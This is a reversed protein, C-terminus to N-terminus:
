FPQRRQDTTSAIREVPGISHATRYKSSCDLTIRRARLSPAAMQRDITVRNTQRVDGNLLPSATHQLFLMIKNLIIL